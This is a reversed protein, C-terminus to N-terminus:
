KQQKVRMFDEMTPVELERFKTYPNTSKDNRTHGVDDHQSLNHFEVIGGVAFDADLYM